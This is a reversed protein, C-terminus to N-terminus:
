NRKLEARKDRALHIVRITESWMGLSDLQDLAFWAAEAADDQATPEGNRWEGFVDVLTYHYQVRGHDDHRISDVVDLLGSVEFDVTTEEMIERRATEFFTEGLKQAGGPLSWSGMRPPKARRVLLVNDHHWVVAGVGVIPREPYQRSM